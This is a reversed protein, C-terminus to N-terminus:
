ISLVSFIGKNSSLGCCHLDTHEWVCAKEKMTNKVPPKNEKIM